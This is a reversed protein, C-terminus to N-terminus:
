LYKVDFNETQRQCYTKKGVYTEYIRVRYELLNNMKKLERLIFLSLNEATSNITTFPEIDNIFKHDLKEQIIKINGFDFLIGVEDKIDDVGQIWVKLMWSHGHINKCKGVYNRLQHASDIVTETYLTIKNEM